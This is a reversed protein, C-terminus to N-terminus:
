LQVNQLQSMGVEIKDLYRMGANRSLASSSIGLYPQLGLPREYRRVYAM